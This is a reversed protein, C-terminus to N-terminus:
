KQEKIADHVGKICNALVTNQVDLPDEWKSFSWVFHLTYVAAKKQGKTGPMENMIIESALELTLTPEKQRLQQFNYAVDGQIMCMRIGQEPTNKAEAVNMVALVMAILMYKIAIYKM